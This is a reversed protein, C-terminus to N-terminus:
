LQPGQQAQLNTWRYRCTERSRGVKNGIATWGHGEARLALLEQDQTTTWGRHGFSVTQPALTAAQHRARYLNLLESKLDDIEHLLASHPPSSQGTVMADYARIVQLSFSASIWMAYSYVLEKVVFTGLGQKSQIASIEAIGIEAILDKTQQNELFYNPRHKAEGGSARHLDNLCFRGVSDQSIPTDSIVLALTNM